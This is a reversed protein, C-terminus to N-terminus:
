KILMMKRTLNVNNTILKYFYVGSSMNNANFDVTYVGAKQYQNILTKIENGLIDYVALKVYGDNPLAYTIKTTPNFPNPYNQELRYNQVLVPEYRVSTKKGTLIATGFLSANQWTNGDTTWWHRVDNRSGKDRDANSIEFGIEQDDKLPMYPEVQAKPIAVELNYGDDTKKFVYTGPGSSIRQSEELKDDGYVWRWQVDNVGDYTTGKSNDGDLFLEVCDNMWPEGRNSADLEEDTVKVFLYFNNDDWLCWFSSLHDNWSTYITDSLPAGELRTLSYELSNNWTDDFDGDIIPASETYNIKLVEDVENPDLVATGFLSANQWTNGDTTWWHIVHDRNGQDRDANSIEFGIEQEDTLPMYPEVQAKPIAVELNYGEETQKFVFDGPGSSIRQSQELKDDGYVWRWQVDNVGDYTSGKSNDGDLFLEVCDNMWPEGRNSADLEDDIVQVFLYFNNDDWLVRFFSSHDDYVKDTDSSGSEFKQLPIATTLLWINDLEGDIVPPVATKPIILVDNVISKLNIVRKPGANLTFAVALLLFTTLLVTFKKM